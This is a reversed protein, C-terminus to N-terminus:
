RGVVNLPNDALQEHALDLDREAHEVVAPARSLEPSVGPRGPGTSGNPIISGAGYDDGGAARAGRRVRTEDGGTDGAARPGDYRAAPTREVLVSARDAVTGGAVSIRSGSAAVSAMAGYAEKADTEAIGRTDNLTANYIDEYSRVGATSAGAGTPRGEHERTRRVPVEAVGDM